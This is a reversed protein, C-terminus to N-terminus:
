KIFHSSGNKTGESKMFNEGVMKGQSGLRVAEKRNTMGYCKLQANVLCELRTTIDGAQQIFETRKRITLM